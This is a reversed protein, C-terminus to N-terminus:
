ESNLVDDGYKVERTDNITLSTGGSPCTCSSTASTTGPLCVFGLLFLKLSLLLLVVVEHLEYWPQLRRSTVCSDTLRFSDSRLPRLGPACLSTASARDAPFTRWTQTHPPFFLNRERQKGFLLVHKLKVTAYRHENCSSLHKYKCCRCCFLGIFSSNAGSILKVGAVPPSFCVQM